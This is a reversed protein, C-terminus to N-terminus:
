GNDAAYVQRRCVPCLCASAGPGPEVEELGAFKQLIDPIFDQDAAAGAGLIGDLWQRVPAAV